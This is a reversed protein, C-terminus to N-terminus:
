DYDDSGPSLQEWEVLVVNESVDSVENIYRVLTCVMQIRERREEEEEEEEEAQCFFVPFNTFLM